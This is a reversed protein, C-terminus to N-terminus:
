KGTQYRKKSLMKTAWGGSLTPATLTCRTSQRLALSELETVWFDDLLQYAARIDKLSVDINKLVDVDFPLPKSNPEKAVCKFQKCLGRKFSIKLQVAEGRLRHAMELLASLQELTNRFRMREVVADIYSQAFGRSTQLFGVYNARATASAEDYVHLARPLQEGDDSSSSPLQRLRTRLDEVHLVNKKWTVCSKQLAVALNPSGRSRLNKTASFPKSTSGRAPLPVFGDIPASWSM